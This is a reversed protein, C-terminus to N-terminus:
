RAVDSQPGDTFVAAEMRAIERAWTEPEFAEESEIAALAAGVVMGVLAASSVRPLSMARFPARGCYMVIFGEGVSRLADLFAATREGFVGGRDVVVFGGVYPDDLGAVVTGGIM